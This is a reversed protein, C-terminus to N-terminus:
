DEGMWERRDGPELIATRGTVPDWVAAAEKQFYDEFRPRRMNTNYIAKTETRVIGGRGDPFTLLFRATGFFGFRAEELVQVRLVCREACRLLGFYNSGFYVACPAYWVTFGVGYILGARAAQEPYARMGVGFSVATVAMLLLYTWTVTVLGRRFVRAEVSRKVAERRGM